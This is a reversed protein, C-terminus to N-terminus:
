NELLLDQATKGAKNRIEPNAGYKLLQAKKPTNKAAYHLATNGDKDQLNPDAGHSLLFELQTIEDTGEIRARRMLSTVGHGDQANIQAGLSLWFEAEEPRIQPTGLLDFAHPLRGLSLNFMQTFFRSDQTCLNNDLLWQMTHTQNNARAMEYFYCGLGKNKIIQAINVGPNFKLAKQTELIANIAQFNQRYTEFYRLIQNYRVNPQLNNLLPLKDIMQYLTRRIAEGRDHRSVAQKKPQEKEIPEMSHIFSSQILLISALIYIKIKKM